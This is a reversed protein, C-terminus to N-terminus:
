KSQAAKNKDKKQRHARTRHIALGNESYLEGCEPCPTNWIDSHRRKWEREEQSVDQAM